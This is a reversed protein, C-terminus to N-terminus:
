CIVPIDVLRGRFLAIEAVCKCSAGKLLETGCEDAYTGQNLMDSNSKTSSILDKMENFSAGELISTLIYIDKGLKLAVSERLKPKNRRKLESVPSFPFEELSKVEVFLLNRVGKLKSDDSDYNSIIRSIFFEKPLDRYLKITKDVSESLPNANSLEDYVMDVNEPTINVLTRSSINLNVYSTM